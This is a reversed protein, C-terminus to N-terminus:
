FVSHNSFPSFFFSSSLLSHCNLFSTFNPSSSSSLSFHRLSDQLKYFLLCHAPKGDRGARGAEQYYGEISKSVSFHVVFRVDPKHIGMGFAITAVIVQLQDKKWQEHVRRKGSEEMGAHYHKAAISAQKLFSAVNESEKKSFCYVIGSQSPYNQKIFEVLESLARKEEKKERVELFLNKRNFGSKFTLCHPINLIKKVDKEVKPTATATLALLPVNPFLSKLFHLQLYDERFDHGWQSCCHAEDLVFRGLLGEEECRKLVKQLKKSQVLKEPTLYLLHIRQLPDVALLSELMREGEGKPTSSSISSANLHPLARLHLIQDHILSVLPTIVVTTQEEIAAPMQYCISKGGGTPMVVFCDKKKLTSVIIEKQNERFERIGFERKLEEMKGVWREEERRKGEERRRKREESEGLNNSTPPFRPSLHPSLRPPTGSDNPGDKTLLLSHAPNPQKIQSDIQSLINIITAKEELLLRVSKNVRELDKEYKEKKLYLQEMRNSELEKEFTDLGKEEMNEGAEELTELNEMQHPFGREEYQHNDIKSDEALDIFTYNNEEM